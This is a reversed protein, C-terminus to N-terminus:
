FQLVRAQRDGEKAMALDLSLGSAALRTMAATTVGSRKQNMIWDGNDM